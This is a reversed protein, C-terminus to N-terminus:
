IQGRAVKVGMGDVEMKKKDTELKRRKRKGNTKQDFMNYFNNLM